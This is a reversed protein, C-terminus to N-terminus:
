KSKNTRWLKFFRTSAPKHQKLVKTTATRFEEKKPQNTVKGGYEKIMGNVFNAWRTWQRTDYLAKKLMKLVTVAGARREDSIENRNRRYGSLSDGSRMYWGWGSAFFLGLVIGLMYRKVDKDSEKKIQAFIERWKDIELDGSFGDSPILEVFRSRNKAFPTTKIKARAIGQTEKDCDLEHVNKHILHEKTYTM